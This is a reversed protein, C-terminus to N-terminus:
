WGLGRAQGRSSGDMHSRSGPTQGSDRVPSARGCAQGLVSRVPTRLLHLLSTAADWGHPPGRTSVELFWGRSEWLPM